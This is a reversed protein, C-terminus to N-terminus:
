EASLEFRDTRQSPDPQGGLVVGGAPANLSPEVSNLMSATEEDTALEQKLREAQQRSLFVNVVCPLDQSNDDLKREVVFLDIMKEEMLHVLAIGLAEEPAGDRYGSAGPQIVADSALIPGHNMGGNRLLSPCQEQKAAFVVACADTEPYCEVNLRQNNAMTAFIVALSAIGISGAAVAIRQQANM